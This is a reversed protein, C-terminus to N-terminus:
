SQPPRPGISRSAPAYAHLFVLLIHIGASSQDFYVIICLFSNSTVELGKKQCIAKHSCIPPGACTDCVTDIWLYRRRVVFFDNLSMLKGRSRPGNIVNQQSSYTRLSNLAALCLVSPRVRSSLESCCLRYRMATHRCLSFIM